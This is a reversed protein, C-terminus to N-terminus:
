ERPPRRAYVHRQYNERACWEAHCVTECNPSRGFHLHLAVAIATRERLKVRRMRHVATNRPDYARSNHVFTHSLSDLPFTDPDIVLRLRSDRPTDSTRLRLIRLLSFVGKTRRSLYGHRLWGGM